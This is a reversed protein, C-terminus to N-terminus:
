QVGVKPCYETLFCQECLPPKTPRCYNRGLDWTSADFVGPYEPYLERTCLMLDHANKETASSSKILGLRYFVKYNQLDPSIDLHNRNTLPIKFHRILINTAMTAIKIGIGNFELFKRVVFSCKANNAWMDRVNDKWTNHITQISKFFILPMINIHRHLNNQKFIDVLVNEKIKVFDKFDTSGIIQSIRYPIIWAREAGIRRDMTCALVYFHPYNEIDNLLKNAQDDNTFPAPKFAENLLANGKSILIEIVSKTMNKQNGATNM